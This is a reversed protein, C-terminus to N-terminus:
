HQSEQDAESAYVVKILTIDSAPDQAIAQYDAESIVHGGEHYVGDWQVIVRPMQKAPASQKELQNLRSHLNTM